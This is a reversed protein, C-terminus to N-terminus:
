ETSALTAPLTFYFSAGAPSNPTAWLRGRHSEIITRSIRLGLGIGHSKTTFFADFIKDAQQQPLGVGNDSVSITLQQGEASQSRISIVRPQVIDKMADISNMILNVIVQQIQLSDAMVRPLDKDLDTRIAISYRQAENRLLAIIELIVQNIDVLQRQSDGKRSLSRIRNIIDAARKGNRVAGL